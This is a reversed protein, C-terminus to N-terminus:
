SLKRIIKKKKKKKKKLDSFLLGGGGAWRSKWPQRLLLSANQGPGGGGLLCGPAAGSHITM